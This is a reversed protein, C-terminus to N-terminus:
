RTVQPPLGKGRDNQTGTLDGAEVELASGEETFVKEQTEGKVILVSEITRAMVQHAIRM